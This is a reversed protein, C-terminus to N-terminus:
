QKWQETGETLHYKIKLRFSNDDIEALVDLSFYTTDTLSIILM